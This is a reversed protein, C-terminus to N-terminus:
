FYNNLLECEIVKTEDDFREECTLNSEDWCKGNRCVIKQEM